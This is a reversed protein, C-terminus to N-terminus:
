AGLALSKLEGATIIFVGVGGHEFELWTFPWHPYAEELAEGSNGVEVILVGEDTLYDVAQALIRRTIDLGDVGSTLAMRPEHSFEQPMATYDRSDVYPPNSVIIDYRPREEALANFLDSQLLRVQQGLEHMAINERAVQAAGDSMEILDVQADPFAMACAIGICGSGACLDLIRQPEASLWPQFGAEILEAIPSRPIIVRRDVKFPLGAFWARGTIYPVPLRQEIRQRFGGLLKEREEMTLRADLITGDVDPSLHLLQSVLSVAEDWANDSGHGYFVRAENLRSMGWRLYDRVTILEHIIESSIAM